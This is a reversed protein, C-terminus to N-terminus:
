LEHTPHHFSRFRLVGLKPWELQPAAQNSKAGPDAAPIAQAETTLETPYPLSM